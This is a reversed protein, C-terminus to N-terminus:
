GPFCTSPFTFRLYRSNCEQCNEVGFEVYIKNTVGIKDFVAEIAGDEDNQSFVKKGKTKLSEVWNELDEQPSKLKSNLAGLDVNIRDIKDALNAVHVNGSNEQDEFAEQVEKLLYM